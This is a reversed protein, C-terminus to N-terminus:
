DRMMRWTTKPSLSMIYHVPIPWPLNWHCSNCVYLQDTVVDYVFLNMPLVKPALWYWFTNRM